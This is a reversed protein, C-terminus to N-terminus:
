RTAADPANAKFSIANTSIVTQTSEDGGSGSGCGALLAMM